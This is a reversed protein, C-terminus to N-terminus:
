LRHRSIPELVVHRRRGGKECVPRRSSARSADHSTGLSLGAFGAAGVVLIECEDTLAERPVPEALVRERPVESFEGEMAMYDAAGRRAEKYARYKAQEVADFVAGAPQEPLVKLSVDTLVGYGSGTISGGPAARTDFVKM